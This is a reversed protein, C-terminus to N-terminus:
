HISVADLMLECGRAEWKAKDEETLVLSVQWRDDIRRVLRSDACTRFEGYACSWCTFILNVCWVEEAGIEIDEQLPEVQHASDIRPKEDPDFTSLLVEKADPPLAGGCGGLTMALVIFVLMAGQRLPQKKM